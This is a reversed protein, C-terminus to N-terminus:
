QHGLAFHWIECKSRVWCSRASWSKVLSCRILYIWSCLCPSVLVEDYGNLRHKVIIRILKRVVATLHKASSNEGHGGQSGGNFSQSCMQIKCNLFYAVLDRFGAGAGATTWYCDGSSFFGVSQGTRAKDSFDLKHGPASFVLLGKVKLM